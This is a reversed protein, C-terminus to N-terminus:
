VDPHRWWFVHFSSRGRGRLRLFIQSHGYGAKIGACTAGTESMIMKWCGGGVGLLDNPCLGGLLRSFGIFIPPCRARQFIGGYMFVCMCVYM